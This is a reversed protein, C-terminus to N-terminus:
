KLTRKKAKELLPDVAVSSVPLRLVISKNDMVQGDMNKEIRSYVFYINKGDKTKGLVLSETTTCLITKSEMAWEKGSWAGYINNEDYSVDGKLKLTGSPSVWTKNASDYKFTSLPLPQGQQNLSVLNWLGKESFYVGLAVGGVTNLKRKKWSEMYKAYTEDTWGLRKDNPIPQGPEVKSELDKKDAEPLAAFALDVAKMYQITEPALDVAIAASVVMKGVPLYEDIVGPKDAANVSCVMAPALLGFLFNRFTKM